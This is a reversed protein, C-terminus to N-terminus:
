RVQTSKGTMMLLTSTIINEKLSIMPQASCGMVPFVLYMNFGVLVGNAPLRQIGASELHAGGPM